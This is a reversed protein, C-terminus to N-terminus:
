ALVGVCGVMGVLLEGVKCVFKVFDLLASVTEFRKDIIMSRIANNMQVM